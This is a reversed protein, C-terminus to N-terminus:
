RDFIGESDIERELEEFAKHKILLTNIDEELEILHDKIGQLSLKYNSSSQVLSVKDLKLLYDKKNTSRWSIDDTIANMSIYWRCSLHSKFNNVKFYYTNGRISISGDSHVLDLHRSKSLTELGCVIRRLRQVMVVKPHLVKPKNNFLNFM